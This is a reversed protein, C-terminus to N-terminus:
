FKLPSYDTFRLVDAIKPTKFACIVAQNATVNFIM